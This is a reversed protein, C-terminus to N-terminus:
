ENEEVVEYFVIRGDPTKEVILKDDIRRIEGPKLTLVLKPEISKWLKKLESGDMGLGGKRRENRKRM